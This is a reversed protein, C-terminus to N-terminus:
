GAGSGGLLRALLRRLAGRPVEAPWAPVPRDDPVMGALVAPRLREPDVGLSQLLRSSAAVPELVALWLEASGLRGGTQLRRSRVLPRWKATLDALVRRFEPAAVPAPAGRSRLADIAGDGTAPPATAPLAARVAEVTLAPQQATLRRTVPDATELLGLLVHESGYGTAGSGRARTAAVRIAAAAPGDYIIM